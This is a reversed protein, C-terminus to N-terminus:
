RVKMFNICIASGPALSGKESNLSHVKQVVVVM